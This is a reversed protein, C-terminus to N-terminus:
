SRKEVMAKKLWRGRYSVGPFRLRVPEGATLTVELSLPQHHDPSYELEDGPEGELKLGATELAQVMRATVALLDRPKLEVEQRSLARQVSFQAVPTSLEGFLQELREEAQEQQARNATFRLTELERRATELQRQAEDLELRLAQAENQRDPPPDQGGAFPNLRGLM